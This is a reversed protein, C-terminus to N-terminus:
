PVGGCSTLGGGSGIPDCESLASLRDNLVLITCVSDVRERLDNIPKCSM